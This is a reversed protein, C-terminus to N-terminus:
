IVGDVKLQITGARACEKAINTFLECAKDEPLDAAIDTTLKFAEIFGVTFAKKIEIYVDSPITKGTLCAAVYTRWMTEISINDLKIIDTYSIKQAMEMFQEKSVIDGINSPRLKTKQV